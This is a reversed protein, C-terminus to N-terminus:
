SRKMLIRTRRPMPRIGRGMGAVQYPALGSLVVGIEWLPGGSPRCAIWVAPCSHEGSLQAVSGTSVRLTRSWWSRSAAGAKCSNPPPRHTASCKGVELKVLAQAKSRNAWLGAGLLRQESPAIAPIRTKLLQVCPRRLRTDVPPHMTPFVDGDEVEVRGLGKVSEASVLQFNSRCLVKAILYYSGETLSKGLTM